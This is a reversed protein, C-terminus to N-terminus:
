PRFQSSDRSPLPNIDNAKSLAASLGDFQHSLLANSLVEYLTSAEPQGELHFFRKIGQWPHDDPEADVAVAIAFEESDYGLRKTYQKWAETSELGTIVSVNARDSELLSDGTLSDILLGDVDRREFAVKLSEYSPYPTVILRNRFDQEGTLDTALWHNTSNEIVGINKTSTKGVWSRLSEVKEAHSYLATRFPYYGPTFALGPTVRESAKTLAGIFLDIEKRRLAALGADVSPFPRIRARSLGPLQFETDRSRNWAFSEYSDIANKCDHFDYFLRAHSSRSDPFGVCNDILLQILDMDYGRYRGQSDTYSFHINDTYSTGVIVTQSRTIRTLVRPYLSFSGYESWDSLPVFAAREARNLPATGSKAAAVVVVRWLFKGSLCQDSDKQCAEESQAILPITSQELAPDSAYFVCRRFKAFDCANATDPGDGHLNPDLDLDIVEVIYNIRDSQSAYRWRLDPPGRHIVAADAAPYELHIDGSRAFETQPTPSQDRAEQELRTKQDTLNKIEAELSDKRNQLTLIFYSVLIGGVTVGFTMLSLFDSLKGKSVEVDSSYQSRGWNITRRGPNTLVLLLLVFLAFAGIYYAVEAM